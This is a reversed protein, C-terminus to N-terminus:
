DHKKIKLSFLISISLYISKSLPKLQKIKQFKFFSNESKIIKKDTLFDHFERINKGNKIIKNYLTLISNNYAGLVNNDHQRYKSLPLEIFKYNFKALLVQLSLYWDHMPIRKDYGLDLDEIIKRSMAITHGIVPNSFFLNPLKFDRDVKWFQKYYNPSITKLNEDSVIVDHFVFDYGKNFYKLVIENKDINWYDDQDTLYLIYNSHKYIEKIINISNFFSHSVSIAYDFRTLNINPHAIRYNEVINISNDSSNYDHIEIQDVKIKQKLISSIQDSIYKEGNHSCILVVSKLM